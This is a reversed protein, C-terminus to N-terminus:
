IMESNGINLVKRADGAYSDNYGGIGRAMEIHAPSVLKWQYVKVGIYSSANSDTGSGAIAEVKVFVVLLKFSAVRNSMCEYLWRPSATLGTVKIKPSTFKAVEHWGFRSDKFMVITIVVGLPRM